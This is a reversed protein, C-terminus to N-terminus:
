FHKTSEGFLILKKLPNSKVPSMSYSFNFIYLTINNMKCHLNPYQFLNIHLMKTFYDLAKTQKMLDWITDGTPLIIFLVHDNFTETHPGIRM